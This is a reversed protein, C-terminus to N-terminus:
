SRSRRPALWGLAGNRTRGHTGAPLWHGDDLWVRWVPTVEGEIPAVSRALTPIAVNLITNDVSILVLTLCLVTLTWWRHRHDRDFPPADIPDIPVARTPPGADCISM